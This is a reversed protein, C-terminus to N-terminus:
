SAEGQTIADALDSHDDEQLTYRELVRKAAELLADRQKLLLDREDRMLAFDNWRRVIEAANAEDEPDDDRNYVVAIPKWEISLVFNDNTLRSVKLRGETHTTM